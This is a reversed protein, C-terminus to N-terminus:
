RSIVDLGYEMQPNPVLKTNAIAGTSLDVLHMTIQSTGLDM